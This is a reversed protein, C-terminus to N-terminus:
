PERLTLTQGAAVDTLVRTRGSPWHVELRKVVAAAGLGLRLRKDSASLYSSATSVTHHQLRGDPTTAVVRAGLGDANSRTGVLRLGLWRNSSGTDNRLVTARQGCNAVVVDVDGDNDLDGFAAGRGAWPAAFPGSASGQVFRSREGRLLLPPQAYRLHDSTLEITDLVHGQAVFLDKTGDNDYDFLRTGWGSFPMSPAAVGATQTTYEFGAALNRYLSYTEGSLTSVFLDPRGDDDYDAFDVGMGAVAAGEANVAVGATLAVDTFRGRGDNHLLFAPVSDNAVYVDTWGDGDYDAFAVGLAKGRLAAVGSRESVDEFTGDGRNRYLLNSVAPFNRPHCYERYGPRRVGCYVDQAFSWDLYRCVFLDLRGDHDYDFFGASTSWGGGGVGARATVDAFRGNGENRYLINTGYNTVYLDADGDNDYDGVAVGMGYGRARALGAAETADTFTGHGRNRYLRNAFVAESKDPEAGPLMPDSLRAGNTFFVDLWGDGDFDLLAVGGAMTEILYKRATPSNAHVFAIGSAATVDTFPSAPRPRSPDDLRATAPATPSVPVDAGRGLAHGLNYRASTHDPDRRLVAEFAAVAEATLGLDVCALGLNFRAGVDDPKVSLAQLFAGRAEAPRGLRAYARGLQYQTAADDPQRAVAKQFAALADPWRDLNGYVAGLAALAEGNEPQLRVAAELEDVARRYRGLNAAAVGLGVHSPAHDPRLTVAREYHDAADAWRGLRGYVRGLNFLANADRPRQEVATRFAVLAEDLRSARELAVGLNYHAETYGPRLRIAERFAAISEDARGLSALAVGLGLHAPAATADAALAAHFADAAAQAPGTRLLEWGQRTREEASTGAPPVQAFLPAALCLALAVRARV